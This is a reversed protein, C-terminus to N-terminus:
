KKVKKTINKFKGDVNRFFDFRLIPSEKKKFNYVAQLKIFIKEDPYQKLSVTDLGISGSFVIPKVVKMDPTFIVGGFGGKKVASYFSGYIFKGDNCLTQAGFHTPTGYDFEFIEAKGSFDSKMRCIRNVNHAKQMTPGVGFYIYDGLVTVADTSKDLEHKGLMNLDADYIAICGKGKRAKDYYAVAAYVKGNSYCIDGTHTEAKVHKILKGNRDLKFIGAMHSVYIANDSVAMGQMHGHAKDLEGKVTFVPPVSVTEALVSMAAIAVSFIFFLKKM